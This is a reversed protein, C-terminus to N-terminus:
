SKGIIKKLNNDADRLFATKEILWNTDSEEKGREINLARKMEM